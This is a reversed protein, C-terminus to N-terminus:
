PPSVLRRPYREWGEPLSLTGDLVRQWDSESVLLIESRFPFDRSAGMGVYRLTNSTGFDRSVEIFRVVQKEDDTLAYIAIGEGSHWAALSRIAEDYSTPIQNLDIMSRMEM